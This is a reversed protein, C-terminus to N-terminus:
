RMMAMLEPATASPLGERCASMGFRTGRWCRVLASLRPVMDIFKPVTSPGANPPRIMLCALTAHTYPRLAMLKTPTIKASATIVYRAAGLVPADLMLTRAMASPKRNTRWEGM